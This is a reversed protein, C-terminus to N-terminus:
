YRLRAHVGRAWKKALKKGIRPIADYHVGDGKNQPYDTFTWSKIFHCGLNQSEQALMNQVSRVGEENELTPVNLDPPGVWVCEAGAKQVQGILFQVDSQDSSTLKRWVMNTGQVIIVRNPTLDQTLIELKPTARNDGRRDLRGTHHEWYGWTLNNGQVWDVPRTGGFAFISVDEGDKEILKVLEKGFAGVSHSDSIILTKSFSHFSIAWLSILLFRLM